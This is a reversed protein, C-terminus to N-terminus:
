KGGFLEVPNVFASNIIAQFVLSEKVRGIAYGQKILKNQEITPSIQELNSYVTHLGNSHEIIITNDSSNNSKKLYVVKGNLVSYVKTDISKPAM